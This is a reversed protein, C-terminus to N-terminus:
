QLYQHTTVGSTCRRRPRTALLCCRHDHSAKPPQLTTLMSRLIRIFYAHRRNSFLDNANSALDRWAEAAKVRYKLAHHLLKFFKDPMHPDEHALRKVRAKIAKCSRYRRREPHFLLDLLELTAPKYERYYFGVIERFKNSSDM